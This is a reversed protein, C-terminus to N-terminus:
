INSFNLEVAEFKGDDNKAWVRYYTKSDPRRQAKNILRCAETFLPHNVKSEYRLLPMVKKPDLKGKTTEFASNIMESVFEHKSSITLSLFEDLKQKAATIILDDFSMPESVKREVKISRDFNFWTYTGKYDVSRTAGNETLVTDEVEDCISKILEKFGQLSKNVALASKLLIASKREQLKEAKTLRNVPIKTGNEDIWMQGRLNQTAM